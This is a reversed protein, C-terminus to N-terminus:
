KLIIKFFSLKKILRETIKREENLPVGAYHLSKYEFFFFFM